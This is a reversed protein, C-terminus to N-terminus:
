GYMESIWSRSGPSGGAGDGTLKWAQLCPHQRLMALRGCLAEGSSSKDLFSASKWAQGSKHSICFTLFLHSDVHLPLLSLVEPDTRVERTFHYWLPAVTEMDERRMIYPPGVQLHQRPHASLSVSGAQHLVVPAVAASQASAHAFATVHAPVAAIRHGSPEPAMRQSALM